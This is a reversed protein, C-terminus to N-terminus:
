PASDAWFGEPAGGDLVFIKLFYYGGILFAAFMAGTPLWDGQRPLRKGFFIQLAYAGLPLLPVMLLWLFDSSTLLDTNM